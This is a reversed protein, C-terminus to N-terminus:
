LRERRLRVITTIAAGLALRGVPNALDARITAPVLPGGGCAAQQAIGTIVTYGTAYM